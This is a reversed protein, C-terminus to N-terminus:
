KEPKKNTQDRRSWEALGGEHIVQISTIKETTVTERLRWKVCGYLVITKLLRKLNM